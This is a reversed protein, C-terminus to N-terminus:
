QVPIYYQGRSTYRVGGITLMWDGWQNKPGISVGAGCVPREFFSYWSGGNSQEYVELVKGGTCTPSPAVAIVQGRPGGYISMHSFCAKPDAAVKLGNQAALRHGAVAEPGSCAFPTPPIPAPPGSAATAAAPLTTALAAALALGHRARM